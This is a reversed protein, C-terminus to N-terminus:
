ATYCCPASPRSPGLFLGGLRERLWRKQLSHAVSVTVQVFDACGDMRKNNLEENLLVILGLLPGLRWCTLESSMLLPAMVITRVFASPTPPGDERLLPPLFFFFFAPNKM